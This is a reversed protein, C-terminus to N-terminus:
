QIAAHLQPEDESHPEECGCCKSMFDVWSWWPHVARELKVMARSYNKAGSELSQAKIQVAELKEQRETIAVALTGMQERQEKVQRAVEATSKLRELYDRRGSAEHRGTRGALLFERETSEQSLGDRVSGANRRPSAANVMGVCFILAVLMIKKMTDRKM